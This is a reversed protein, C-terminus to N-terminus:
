IAQQKHLFEIVSRNARKAQEIFYVHGAHHFVELEAQPIHEAILQGNKFPVLVDADGHQVLTPASIEHLRELTDHGTIAMWQGQFGHRPIRYRVGDAIYQEIIEPYQQPFDPGFNFAVSDRLAEEPAKLAGTMMTEIVWMEPPITQAGGPMTCGLVLGGVRQPATLVLQQAIMGGMSAGWIHVREFGLADVVALADAAFAAMSYAEPAQPADSGGSGRNDFRIVTFHESLDAVQYRWGQITGGLGMILLLPPGSGEVEYYLAVDNSQVHPM